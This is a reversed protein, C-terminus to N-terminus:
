KSIRHFCLLAFCLLHRAADHRPGPGELANGSWGLGSAGESDPEPQTGTRSRTPAPTTHLRRAKFYSVDPTCGRAAEPKNIGTTDVQWHGPRALLKFAVLRRLTTRPIIELKGVEV